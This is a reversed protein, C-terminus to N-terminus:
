VGTVAFKRFYWNQDAVGTTFPNHKMGYRTKFGIRPQFDDEGQAKMMTLPVYPCYFYGADYSNSGKYGVLVDNTARYPDVYVDYRNLLRGAYTVGINDNTLPQGGRAQESTNLASAMDLAAAISPTTIVFNGLGRRTGLAVEHAVRNIQGIINKYHEQEWRGQSDGSAAIDYVGSLAWVGEYDFFDYGGITSAHVYDADTVSNAGTAIAQDFVTDVIERNIEVNLEGSLLNALETEADLGHIQRLDHALEHTYRAKLAKLKAEVSTQDISFTMEAWPSVQTVPIPGIPDTAGTQSFDATGKAEDNAGLIEGESTLMSDQTPNAKTGGGLQPDPVAGPRYLDNVTVNSTDTSHARLSFILGTPGSMPQVGMFANALLTPQTRRVLSILIPDWNKAAGPATSDGAMTPHGVVGAGDTGEEIFDIQNELVRILNNRITRDKIEPVGEAELIPQWKNVVEETLIPTDNRNAM